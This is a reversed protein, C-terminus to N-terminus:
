RPSWRASFGRRNVSSDTRFTVYLRNSTVPPPATTGATKSLVAGAADVLTVFDYGAETDFDDFTLTVAAGTDICWTRAFDDTYNNPYGASTLTGSASTLTVDCSPPPPLQGDCYVGVDAWSSKIAAIEDASYELARAADLTGQCGQVFTTSSTWYRANALFFPTAARRVGAANANGDVRGSLRKALRCFMKNPVGSSYHPDLSPTMKSAHDISRGDRPPDCMYRLAGDARFIHGGLDFSARAEDYFFEAAKGAIDSFGENLGGSEGAYALSSHKATFGHHIEHAVVDLAGSLPYFTTAGDGYTMQAGNWFANEYATGYHVRSVIRFGADDISDHGFWSSLVNLTIEAYGHADNVAPDRFADLEATVDNGLGTEGSSMDTTRLRPTTLVFASGQPEVDLEDRWTQTHKPNGGPGSAQVTDIGNWSALRRGSKADYVYNWLGPALGSDLENYFSVHLAYHSVGTPDVFVIPTAADRLTAVRRKGYQALKAKALAAEPTLSAATDLHDVIAVSGAVGVLESDTAHVVVDAGWVPVGAHRQKLRVHTRGDIGAAVTADDFSPAHVGARAAANEAYRRADDVLDSSRRM